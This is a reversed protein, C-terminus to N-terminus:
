RATVRLTYYEGGPYVTVSILYDGTRPVTSEWRTHDSRDPPDQLGGQGDVDSVEVRTLKLPSTARVVLRRGAKAHILYYDIWEGGVLGKVTVTNRGPPFKLRRPKPPHQTFCLVPLLILHIVVAFLIAIQKIQAKLSYDAGDV